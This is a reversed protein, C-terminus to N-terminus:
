STARSGYERTGFNTASTTPACCDFSPNQIFLALEFNDSWEDAGIRGQLLLSSRAASWDPLYLSKDCFGGGRMPENIHRKPECRWFLVRAAGDSSRHVM